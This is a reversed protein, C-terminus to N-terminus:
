GSPRIRYIATRNQNQTVDFRSVWVVSKNGTYTASIGWRGVAPLPESRVDNTLQYRVVWDGPPLTDETYPEGASNTILNGTDPDILNANPSNPNADTGPKKQCRGVDGALVERIRYRRETGAEWVQTDQQDQPGFWWDKGAGLDNWLNGGSTNWPNRGWEQGLLNRKEQNTLPARGNNLDWDWTGIDDGYERLRTLPHQGPPSSVYGGGAARNGFFRSIRDWSPANRESPSSWGNLTVNGSRNPTVDWSGSARADRGAPASGNANYSDWRVDQGSSAPTASPRTISESELSGPNSEMGSITDSSLHHAQTGAPKIVNATYPDRIQV